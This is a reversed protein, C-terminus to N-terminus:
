IKFYEKALLCFFLLMQFNQCLHDYDLIDKQQSTLNNEFLLYFFLDIGQNANSTKKIQLNKTGLVFV